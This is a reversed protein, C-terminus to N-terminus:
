IMGWVKENQSLYRTLIGDWHRPLIARFIKNGPCSVSPSTVKLLTSERSMFDRLIYYRLTPCLFFFRATESLALTTPSTARRTVYKLDVAIHIHRMSICSLYSALNLERGDPIIELALKLAPWCITSEWAKLQAKDGETVLSFWVRNERLIAGVKRNM